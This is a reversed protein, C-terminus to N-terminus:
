QCYAHVAGQRGRGRCFKSSGYPRARVSFASSEHNQNSRWILANSTRSCAGAPVQGRHLITASPARIPSAPPTLSERSARGPAGRGGATAPVFVATSTFRDTPVAGRGGFVWARGGATGCVPRRGATGGASEFRESVGSFPHSSSTATSDLPETIAASSTVSSALTTAGASDDEDGSM